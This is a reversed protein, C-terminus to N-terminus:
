YPFRDRYVPQPKRLEKCSSCRGWEPEFGGRMYDDGGDVFTAGCFCSKFDHRHYSYLEQLCNNCKIGHKYKSLKKKM